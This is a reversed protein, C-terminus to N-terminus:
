RPTLPKSNDGVCHSPATRLLGARIGAAWESALALDSSAHAAAVDQPYVTILRIKGVYVTPRGRVADIYVPPLTNGSMAEVLRKLVITEREAVTYGAAPSLITFFVAGNEQIDASTPTYNATNTPPKCTDDGFLVIEDPVVCWGIASAAIMLCLTLLLTAIAKMGLRRLRAVKLAASGCGQIDITGTKAGPTLRKV